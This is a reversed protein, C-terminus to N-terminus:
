EGRKRGTRGGEGKRQTGPASVTSEPAPLHVAPPVDHWGRARLDAKGGSGRRALAFRSSAPSASHPLSLTLPHPQVPPCPHPDTVPEELCTVNSAELGGGVLQHRIGTTPERPQRPHTTYSTHRQIPRGPGAPM